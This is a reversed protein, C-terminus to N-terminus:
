PADLACRFGVGSYVLDGARLVAPLQPSLSYRTTTRLGDAADIWGGGRLVKLGTVNNENVTAGPNTQYYDAQYWDQVWEMVGGALGFIGFPSAGTVLATTPQFASVFSEGSPRIGFVAQNPLPDSNGWPYFRGDIGRAAYEWEAESPLRAGVWTCYDQAGYWSVWNIPYTEFGAKPEYFGVNNLLYTYQTEFGTKACDFSGGGCTQRYGGIENLFAAFQHVMVEQEDLYFNHLTVTHAPQEHPQALPDELAAGMQFTSGTIYYMRMNDKPRVIAKLQADVQFQALLLEASPTSTAQTTPQNVATQAAQAAITGQADLATEYQFTATAAVATGALAAEGTARGASQAQSTAIQAQTTAEVLSQSQITSQAVLAQTTGQVAVATSEVELLAADAQLSSYNSWLLLAMVAALLITALAINVFRLRRAAIAQAEARAKQEQALEQAQILERQRVAEKEQEEQLIAAKSAEVFEAELVSLDTYHLVEQLAAGRLLAGPNHSLSEWHEAQATLRQRHRLAVREDELWSILRPWNRVLAEHAVEVQDDNPNIGKTLRVLRAQVLKDLVRDLRDSAEGSQYLIKRRVRNRTVELGESPRVIRLFIRKVTVQEEPLLGEYLSDATSGLAKLVGGLRRYSEWTIRNRERNEWLQLLAFQLLPLAAPEGLIERIVEDVLGEEFKLGIAAAPKEIADRLEAANMATLRITSQEILGHLLPTRHLYSEYDTRMTLLVLHRHTRIQLLNLLNDIFATREMEDFCLTYVEEFQDIVLVATPQGPQSLLSTLHHPNTKFQELHELMWDASGTGKPELLRALQTLPASGPVFPRFYHWTESGPLVGAELKPLLGALLLSSKGSGSPGIIAVMQTLDIQQILEQVIQERGFFLHEDKEVFAELGRYPCREDPIEPQSLPNFEVLLADPPEAGAHFLQNEWYDLLNQAAWREQDDDLYAGGAQARQLFTTVTQLFDASETDDRRNQLLEKHAERISALSLFPTIETQDDMLTNRIAYDHNKRWIFGM